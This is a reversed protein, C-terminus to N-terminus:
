LGRRGRRMRVEAGSAASREKRALSEAFQVRRRRQRPLQGQLARRSRDPCLDRARGRGAETSTASIRSQWQHLAQAAGDRSAGGRDAARQGLPIPKAFDIELHATVAAQGGDLADYGDGRRICDVSHWRPDHGSWGRFTQRGAHTRHGRVRARSRSWTCDVRRCRRAAASACRTTLACSRAPRRLAQAVPSRRRARRAFCLLNECVALRTVVQTVVSLRRMGSTGAESRSRVVIARSAGPVGRRSPRSRMRRPRVPARMTRPCSGSTSLMQAPPKSRSTANAGVRSRSSDFISPATTRDVSPARITRALTCSTGSGDIGVSSDPVRCRLASRVAM